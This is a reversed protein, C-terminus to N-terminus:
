VDSSSTVVEQEKFFNKLTQQRALFTAFILNCGERHSYKGIKEWMNSHLYYVYVVKRDDLVYMQEGYVMAIQPSCPGCGSYDKPVIWKRREIDLFAAYKPRNGKIVYITDEYVASRLQCHYLSNTLPAIDTWANAEPDYMECSRLWENGDMGGLAFLHGGASAVSVFSRPRRLSAVIRWMNHNPCYREVHPLSTSYKSQGGVCYLMAELLGAGAWAKAVRMPALPQLKFDKMAFCTATKEGSKNEGGFFFIASGLCAMAAGRHVNSATNNHERYSLWQDQVLDFLEFVIKDTRSISIVMMLPISTDSNRDSSSHMSPPSPVVASDTSPSASGTASVECEAKSSVTDDFDQQHVNLWLSSNSSNQVCKFITELQHSRNKPDHKVWSLAARLISDMSHGIEYSQVVRMVITLFKELPLSLYRSSKYRTELQRSLLDLSKEIMEPDKCRESLDLLEIVNNSTLTATLIEACKRYLSNIELQYAAELASSVANFNKSSVNLRGTYVFELLVEATSADIEPFLLRYPRCVTSEEKLLLEKLYMSCTALLIRHAPLSANGCVLVVDTMATHKLLRFMMNRSSRIYKTFTMGNKNECTTNNNTIVTTPKSIQVSSNEPQAQM